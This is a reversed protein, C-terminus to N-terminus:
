RARQSSQRQTDTDTQQSSAHTRYECEHESQSGRREASPRVRHDAPEDVQGHTNRVNQEDHEDRQCESPSQGTHDRANRETVPRREGTDNATLDDLQPLCWINQGRTLQADRAPANDLAVHQGMQERLKDDSQHELERM